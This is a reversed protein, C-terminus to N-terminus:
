LFVMSNLIGSLNAKDLDFTRKGGLLHYGFTRFSIGGGSSSNLFSEFMRRVFFFCRDIYDKVRRRRSDFLELAEQDYHVGIDMQALTCITPKKWHFSNTEGKEMYANRYFREQKSSFGLEVREICVTFNM